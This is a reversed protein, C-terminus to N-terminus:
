CMVAPYAGQELNPPDVGTLAVGTGRHPRRQPFGDRAAGPLGASM